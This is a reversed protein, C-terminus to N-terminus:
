SPWATYEETELDDPATTRPRFARRRAPPTTAVAAHPGVGVLDYDAADMVAIAELPAVGVVDRGSLPEMDAFEIEDLDDDLHTPARSYVLDVDAFHTNHM